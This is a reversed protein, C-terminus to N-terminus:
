GEDVSEGTVTDTLDLCERGNTPLMGVANGIEGLAVGAGIREDDVVVRVAPDRGYTTFAFGTEVEEILWYVGEVETCLLESPGPVPVGCYLLMATPEGWASSSQANTERQQYDSVQDPLRVIVDACAPDNAFTPAPTMNVIPSCGVLTAAAALALIASFLRRSPM